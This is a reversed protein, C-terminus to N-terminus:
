RELAGSNAEKSLKGVISQIVGGNTRSPQSVVVDGLRVDNTASPAGGGIGVMLGFRISKFTRVMDKSVNAASNTGYIGVPLCAIVVNHNQIRGLKYSNHDSTDQEQLDEHIEDLMVEAAAM